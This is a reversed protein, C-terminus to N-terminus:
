GDQRQHKTHLFCVRIQEVQFYFGAEDAAEFAAKPTCWSHFRLHNLGYAKAQQILKAWGEKQMPPHGTLPFIACELNGRLYIRQGNLTIDGNDNAVEKFGFTTSVTDVGSIVRATFINPNFEDWFELEKPRVIQCSIKDGEEKTKQIPQNHISQGNGDMIEFYQEKDGTNEQEFTILLANSALDPYIQLNSPANPPSAELVIDGLIGNWKIQTHNTYGHAMDQNVPDPYKTGAVNIFPYKNGNDVRITLLHKGPTLVKTLDYEHSGILSEAKGIEKGDVFVTSEWIIRELTLRIKKDEWNRPIEVDKQYWAKGIYQHKRTLNSLVHNNLEPKLTNATGIGADDLTGPLSIPTGQFVAAAWNEVEGVNLSDLKVMWQGELSLANEVPASCNFFLLVQGVYLVFIFFRKMNRNNKNM